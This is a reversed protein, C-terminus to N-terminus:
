QKEGFWGHCLSIHKKEHTHRRAICFFPLKADPFLTGVCLVRIQRVTKRLVVCKQILHSGRSVAVVAVV